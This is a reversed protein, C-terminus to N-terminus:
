HAPAAIVLTVHFAILADCRVPTGTCVPRASTIHATGPQAAVFAAGTVGRMLMLSGNPSPQLASSDSHIPAWMHAESGHLYVLVHQGVRLCFTSANDRSGLTLTSGSPAPKASGGCTETAAPSASGTATPSATATATPSANGTSPAAGGASSNAAQSGCAATALAMGMILAFAPLSRSAM